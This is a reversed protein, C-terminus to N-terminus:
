LKISLTCLHCKGNTHELIDEGQLQFVFSDHWTNWHAVSVTMIYINKVGFVVKHQCICDYQCNASTATQLGRPM